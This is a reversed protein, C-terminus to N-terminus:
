IENLEEEFRGWFPTEHTEILFGLDNNLPKRYYIFSESVNTENYFM